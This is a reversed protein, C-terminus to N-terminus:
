WHVMSDIVCGDIFYKTVYDYPLIGYGGRNVKTNGSGWQEGWSNRFIFYGGGPRHHEEKIMTNDRYGYLTIAHGGVCEDFLQVKGDDHIKVIPLTIEGTLKTQGNFWADRFVLLGIGVPKKEHLMKRLINVVDKSYSITDAEKLKNRDAYADLAKLKKNPTIFLNAHGWDHQGIYRLNIEGCVGFEKLAQIGYGFTTGEDDNNNDAQKARFFLYQESFNPNRRPNKLLALCEIMGTLAFAVCTGRKQQDRVHPFKGNEFLLTEGPLSTELSVVKLHRGALDEQLFNLFSLEHYKIQAVYGVSYEIPMLLSFGATGAQKFPLSLSLGNYKQALYHDIGKKLRENHVLDPLIEEIGVKGHASSLVSALHEVHRINFAQLLNKDTDSLLSNIGPSQTIRM